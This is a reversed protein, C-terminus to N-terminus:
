RPAADARDYSVDMEIDDDEEEQTESEEDDNTEDEDDEEEEEEERETATKGIPTIELDKQTIKNLWTKHEMELHVLEAEDNCPQDVSFWLPDVIRPTFVPFLPISM